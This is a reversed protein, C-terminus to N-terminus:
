IHVIRLKIWGASTFSVGNYLTWIEVTLLARSAATKYYIVPDPGTGANYKNTFITAEFAGLYWDESISESGCGGGKTSIDETNGSGSVVWGNDETWNGSLPVAYAEAAGTIHGWVVTGPM